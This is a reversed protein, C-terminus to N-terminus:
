GQNSSLRIAEEIDAVTMKEVEALPTLPQGVLAGFGGALGLGQYYSDEMHHSLGAGSVISQFLKVERQTYTKDIGVVSALDEASLQQLRGTVKEALSGLKLNSLKSLNFSEEGDDESESKFADQIDGLLSGSGKEFLKSTTHGHPRTSSQILNFFSM